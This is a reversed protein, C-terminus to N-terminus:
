QRQLQLLGTLLRFHYKLCCIAPVPRDVGQLRGTGGYVQCMWQTDLSKPVPTDLVADTVGTIRRVQQPHVPQRLRPDGWWRSPLQAFQHAVACLEDRQARAEFGLRM